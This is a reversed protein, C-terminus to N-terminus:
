SSVWYDVLDRAVSALEPFVSTERIGAVSLEARVRKVSRSPIDIRILRDAMGSYSEIARELKALLVDLALDGANEECRKFRQARFIRGVFSNHFCQIFRSNRHHKKVPVEGRIWLPTRMIEDADVISSGSKECRFM